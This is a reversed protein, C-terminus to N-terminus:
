TKIQGKNFDKPVKLSSTDVRLISLVDMLLANSLFENRNQKDYLLVKEPPQLIQIM